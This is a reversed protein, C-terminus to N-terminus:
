LVFRQFKPSWIVSPTKDAPINQSRDGSTVWAGDVMSPSGETWMLTPRIQSTSFAILCRSASTSLVDCAVSPTSFSHHGLKSMRPVSLSSGPGPAVIVVIRNCFPVCDAPGGPAAGDENVVVIFNKTVPDYAAAVGDRRSLFPGTSPIAPDFVQLTSWSGWTGSAGQQERWALAKSFTNPIGVVPTPESYFYQRRRGLGYAVSSGSYQYGAVSAANWAGATNQQVLYDSPPNLPSGFAFAPQGPGPQSSGQVPLPFKVGAWTPWDVATSWNGASVRDRSKGVPAQSGYNTRFALKDYKSFHRAWIPSSSTMVSPDILGCDTNPHAYGLAHGFEHVLVNTPDKTRPVAPPSTGEPALLPNWNINECTGTTEDVRQKHLRIVANSIENWDIPHAGWSASGNRSGDCESKSRVLIAGPIAALETTTGAYRLRVPLGSQERYINLVNQVIRVWDAQSRAPLLTAAMNGANVYVNVVPQEWTCPCFPWSDNCAEVRQTGGLSTISAAIVAVAIRIAGAPRSRAHDAPGNAIPHDSM